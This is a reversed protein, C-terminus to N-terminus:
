DVNGSVNGDVDGRKRARYRRKREREYRRKEDDNRGDIPTTPTGQDAIGQMRIQHSRQRAMSELAMARFRRAPDLM